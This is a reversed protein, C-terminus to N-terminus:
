GSGTQFDTGDDESGALGAAETCGLLQQLPLTDRKEVASALSSESSATTGDQAHEARVRRRDQCARTRCVHCRKDVGLPLLAHARSESSAGCAQEFERRVEISQQDEEGVLRQDGNM